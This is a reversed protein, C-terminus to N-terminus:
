RGCVGCLREGDNFRTRHDGAKCIASATSPLRLPPHLSQVVAPSHTHQPNHWIGPARVKVVHTVDPDLRYLHFRTGTSGADAVVAAEVFVGDHEDEGGAFPNWLGGVFAGVGLGATALLVLV